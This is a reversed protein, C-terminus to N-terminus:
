RLEALQEASPPPLPSLWARLLFEAEAQTAHTFASDHADGVSVLWRAKSSTTPALCLVSRPRDFHHTTASLRLWRTSRLVLGGPVVFWDRGRSAGRSYTVGVLIGFFLAIQSLRIAGSYWADAAGIAGLAILLVHMGNLKLFRRLAPSMGFRRAAAWVRGEDRTESAVHEITDSRVENLPQPLFTVRMPEIGSPIATAPMLAVGGFGEMAAALAFEASIMGASDSRGTAAEWVRRLTEAPGLQRLALMARRGRWIGSARWRAQYTIAVVLAVPVGVFLVALPRRLGIASAGLMPLFALFVSLIMTGLLDTNQNVVASPFDIATVSGAARTLGLENAASAGSIASGAQDADM